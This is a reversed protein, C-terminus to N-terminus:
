PRGRGGGRVGGQGGALSGPACQRRGGLVLGMGIGTGISIFAFSDVGRGHGHAREALAAVDIDNEILVSAGFAERLRPLVSPSDWGRLGGALALADRTPDYVGPSGIVTQTVPARDLGAM